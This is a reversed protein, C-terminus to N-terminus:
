LFEMPNHCGLICKQFRVKVVVVFFVLRRCKRQLRRQERLRWSPWCGLMQSTGASPHSVSQQVQCAPRGDAGCQFHGVLGRSPSKQIKSFAASLLLVSSCYAAACRDSRESLRWSSMASRLHPFAQSQEPTRLFLLIATYLGVNWSGQESFCLVWTLCLCKFFASTWESLDM